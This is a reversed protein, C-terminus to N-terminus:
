LIYFESILNQEDLAWSILPVGNYQTGIKDRM